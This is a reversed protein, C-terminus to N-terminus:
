TERVRLGHVQPKKGWRRKRRNNAQEKATAWRCNGPEYNGDNNPFRDLTTGAPREGMDALFNEYKLWHDCIRIGRGGYNEWNCYAKNTCRQIAGAWSNYTQSTKGISHGHTEMRRASVEVRYCGCSVSEGRRLVAGIVARESGCVCRCLWRSNRYSWNDQHPARSLVSWRGFTQGALELARM